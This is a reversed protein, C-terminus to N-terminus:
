TREPLVEVWSVAKVFPWTNGLKQFQDISEAFDPCHSSRRIIFKRRRLFDPAIEATGVTPGPVFSEMQQFGQGPNPSPHTPLGYDQNRFLM